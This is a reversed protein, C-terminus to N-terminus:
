KDNKIEEVIQFELVTLVEDEADSIQELLQKLFDLEQEGRRIDDVKEQLNPNWKEAEMAVRNILTNTWNIYAEQREGLITRFAKDASAIAQDLENKCAKKDLQEGFAVHLKGWDLKVIDKVIKERSIGKIKAAEASPQNMVLKSFDDKKEQTLGESGAIIEICLEKFEDGKREWFGPAVAHIQENLRLNWTAVFTDIDKKVKTGLGKGFPILPLGELLKEKANDMEKLFRALPEKRLIDYEEGDKDLKSKSSKKLNDILRKEEESLAMRLQQLAAEQNCKALELEQSTKQLADELFERAQVCKNYLAFNKAYEGIEQEIAWLGSNYLLLTREDAEEETAKQCDAQLKQATDEGPLVDCLFLQTYRKCGRDTFKEKKDDYVEGYDEDKFQGMTEKKGALGMIASVFFLRSRWQRICSDENQALERLASQTSGDAQNVVILANGLDLNGGNKELNKLLSKTAEGDDVMPPTTVVVPLGNTLKQLIDQLTGLHEKHSDSNSGPTDYIEFNFQEWPLNSRLFPVEVELLNGIGYCCEGDKKENAKDNILKLSRYVRQFCLATSELGKMAKKWDEIIPDKKPPTCQYSSSHDEKDCFSLKFVTEEHKFTISAKGSECCTVKYIKATSAKLASPLVEEGILANIFASKGSSYTGTVCISITPRSASKFRELEEPARENLPKELDSFRGRITEMAKEAPVLEGTGKRFVLKPHLEGDEAITHNKAYDQLYEFDTALGDFVIETGASNGSSFDWLAEFLGKVKHQLTPNSQLFAYLKQNDPSIPSPKKGEECFFCEMRRTKYAEDKAGGKGVKRYPNYRLLLKYPKAENAKAM